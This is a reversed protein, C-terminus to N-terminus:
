GSPAPLVGSPHLFPELIRHWIRRWREGPKLQEATNTLGSLFLSLRSLLEQARPAEAHSSTIRLTTQGGSQIIRGVSFLLLPRSTVAERATAPEACRVFLNWWNYVQAVLRAAM